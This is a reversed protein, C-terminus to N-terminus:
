IAARDFDRYSCTVTRTIGRFGDGAIGVPAIVASNVGVWPVLKEELRRLEGAKMQGAVVEHTGIGAGL